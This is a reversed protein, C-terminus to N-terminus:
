GPSTVGRYDLTEQSYASVALPADQLGEERRRATVVLEEILKAAQDQEQAASSDISFAAMLVGTLTALTLGTIKEYRMNIGM